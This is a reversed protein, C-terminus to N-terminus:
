TVRDLVTADRLIQRVLEANESIILRVRDFPTDQNNNLVQTNAGAKLLEYVALFNGAAAAKHLSTNGHEDQYNPDAFCRLLLIRLKNVDTTNVVRLLQRSAARIFAQRLKDDFTIYDIAVKGFIDTYQLEVGKSLLMNCAAMKHAAAAFIIPTRFNFRGGLCQNLTSVNMWNLLVHLSLMRSNEIAIFVGNLNSLSSTLFRGYNSLFLELALHNGYLIHPLYFRYPSRFFSM